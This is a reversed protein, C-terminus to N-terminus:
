KGGSQGQITSVGGENPVFSSGGSVLAGVGQGITVLPSTPSWNNQAAFDFAFSKYGASAADFDSQAIARGAAGFMDGVISGGAGFAGGAILATTYSGNQNDVNNLVATQAANGVAAIASNAVTRGVFALVGTSGIAGSAFASLGGTAAGVVTATVGQTVNYSALIPKGQSYASYAQGAFDVGFGIVAGVCAPCKGSPDTQNLPDNDTYAYLHNGGAYGIPDTQHFRGFVPSYMRAHADLLGTEADRRQGTYGFAFGGGGEGYPGVGQKTLTGSASDLTGIISGQIDPIPTTRTGSTLNVRSLV